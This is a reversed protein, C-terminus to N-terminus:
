MQSRDIKKTLLICMEFTQGRIRSIKANKTRSSDIRKMIHPRGCSDWIYIYINMYKYIYIINYVM